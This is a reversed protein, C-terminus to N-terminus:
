CRHLEYIAAAFGKKYEDNALTYADDKAAIENIRKSSDYMYTGDYLGGRTSLEIAKKYGDKYEM